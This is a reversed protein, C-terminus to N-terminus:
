RRLQWVVETVRQGAYLRVTHRAIPRYHQHLVAALIRDNETPPAGNRADPSSLIVAPRRALTERLLTSSPRELADMEADETFHGPFVYRGALCAGTKHYLIVPGEYVFLCETRVSAPIAAALLEIDRTDHEGRAAAAVGHQAALVALAVSAGAVVWRRRFGYAALLALPPILPLIYHEFCRGIAV